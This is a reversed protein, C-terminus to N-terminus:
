PRDGSKPRLGYFGPRHPSARVEAKAAAEGMSNAMREGPLARMRAPAAPRM